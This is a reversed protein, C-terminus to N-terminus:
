SRCGGEIEIKHSTNKTRRILQETTVGIRKAHIEINKSLTASIQSFPIKSLSEFDSTFLYHISKLLATKGVGNPGHVITISEENDLTLKHNYLGYLEMIEFTLLRDQM